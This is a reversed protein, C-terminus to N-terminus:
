LNSCVSLYFVTIWELMAARRSELLRSSLYVDCAWRARFSSWEQSTTVRRMFPVCSTWCGGRRGNQKMLSNGRQAMKRARGRGCSSSWDICLLLSKLLTVTVICNSHPLRTLTFLSKTFTGFLHLLLKCKNSLFRVVEWKVFWDRSM